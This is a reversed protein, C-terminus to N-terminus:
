GKVCGRGGTFGDGEYGDRCKCRFAARGTVPSVLSTCNANESCERSCAGDMWWGLEVESLVLVTVNYADEYTVATFLFKCGTGNAVASEPLFDGTGSSGVIDNAYCSVSENKAECTPQKLRDSIINTLNLCGATSSSGSCSLLVLSTKRTPAYNHSFLKKVSHVSRSCNSPVALLIRDSTINRIVFEGIKPTSATCNLPIGCGPYFSFPYPVTTPGCFRTCDSASISTGIFRLLLLLLLLPLNNPFQSTM